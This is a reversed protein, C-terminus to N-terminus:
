LLDCVAMAPTLHVARSEFLLPFFVRCHSVSIRSVKTIPSNYRCYSSVILENPFCRYEVLITCMRNLILTKHRDTQGHPSEFQSVFTNNYVRPLSHSCTVFLMGRSVVANQYWVCVIDCPLLELLPLFM